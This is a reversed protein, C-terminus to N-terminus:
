LDVFTESPQWLAPLVRRGPAAIRHLGVEVVLRSLQDATEVRATIDEQGLRHVAVVHPTVTAARRGCQGVHGLLGNHRPHAAVVQVRQVLLFVDCAVQRHGPPGPHDIGGAAVVTKEDRHVLDSCQDLFEQGVGPSVRRDGRRRGARDALPEPPSGTGPFLDSGTPPAVSRPMANVSGPLRSPTPPTSPRAWMGSPRSRPEPSHGLPRVPLVSPSTSPPRPCRCPSTSSPPPPPACPRPAPPAASSFSEASRSVST